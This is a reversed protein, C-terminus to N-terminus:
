KKTETLSKLEDIKKYLKEIQEETLSLIYDVLKENANMKREGKNNTKHSPVASGDREKRISESYKGM